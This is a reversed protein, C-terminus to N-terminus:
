RRICDTMDRFTIIKERYIMIDYGLLFILRM